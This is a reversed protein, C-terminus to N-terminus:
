WMGWEEGDLPQDRSSSRSPRDRSSSRSPRAHSRSTGLLDGCRGGTWSIRSLPHPVYSSSSATGYVNGGPYQYERDGRGMGRGDYSGAVSPRGQLVSVQREVPGNCGSLTGGLRNSERGRRDPVWTCLGSSASPPVLPKSAPCSMCEQSRTNSQHILANRHSIAWRALPSHRIIVHGM